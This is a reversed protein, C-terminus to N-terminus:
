KLVNKCYKSFLLRCKAHCSCMYTMDPFTNMRIPHQMVRIHSIEGFALVPLLCIDSACVFTHYAMARRKRKEPSPLLGNESPFLHTM